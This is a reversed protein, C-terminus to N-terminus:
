RNRAGGFREELIKQRISEKIKTRQGVDRIEDAERMAQNLEKMTMPTNREREDEMIQRAKPPVSKSVFHMAMRKQYEPNRRIEAWVQPKQAKLTKIEDAMAKTVSDFMYPNIEGYISHLSNQVQMDLSGYAERDYQLNPDYLQEQGKGLKAMDAKMARLDKRAAVLEMALKTTLPLGKGGKKQDELAEELYMDLFDQDEDDPTREKEEGGFAKKVRSLTEGHEKMQSSMRSKEERLSKVESSLSDLYEHADGGETSTHGEGSVPTGSSSNPSNTEM